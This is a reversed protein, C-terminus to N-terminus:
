GQRSMTAPPKRLLSLSAFVTEVCMTESRVFQEFRQHLDGTQVAPVRDETASPMSMPLFTSAMIIKTHVLVRQVIVFRQASAESAGGIGTTCPNQLPAINMLTKPSTIRGWRIRVTNRPPNQMNVRRLPPKTCGAPTHQLTDRVPRAPNQDHFAWRADNSCRKLMPVRPRWGPPRAPLRIACCRPCSLSPSSAWRERRRLIRLAM